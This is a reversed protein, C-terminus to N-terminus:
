SLRARYGVGRVTEILDGYTGLKKRLAFIHTDVARDIVAIGEGQVLEILRERTLVSGQNAALAHLLKFESPTLHVRECGCYADYSRMNIRLGGLMLKEDSQEEAGTREKILARIRALFSDGDFPKSLVDNAGTELIKGQKELDVEKTMALISLAAYDGRIKKLLEFGCLEPLLFNTILLDIPQNSLIQVVEPGNQAHSVECDLESLLNSILTRM